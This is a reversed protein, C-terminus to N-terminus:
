ALVQDSITQTQEKGDVSTDSSATTIQNSSFTTSVGVPPNVRRVIAHRVGSADIATGATYLGGRSDALFGNAFASQGSPLQWDDLTTWQTGDPGATRVVAHRYVDAGDGSGSVYLNGAPDAGFAYAMCSGSGSLSFRDVTAWSAGADSSGDM